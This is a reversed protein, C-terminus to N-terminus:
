GDHHSMITGLPPAVEELSRREADVGFFWEILGGGLMFAAGVVYGITVHTRSASAILAGFLM